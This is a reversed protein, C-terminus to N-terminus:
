PRVQRPRDRGTGSCALRGGIPDPSASHVQPEQLRLIPLPRAIVDHQQTTHRQQGAGGDAHGIMQGASVNGLTLQLIQFDGQLLDNRGLIEIIIQHAIRHGDVIIAVLRHHGISRSPAALHLRHAIPDLRGTIAIGGHHDGDAHIAGTGQQADPDDTM